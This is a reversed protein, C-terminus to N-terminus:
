CWARGGGRRLVDAASEFLVDVSPRGLQVREECSFALDLGSWWCTTGPRRSALVLGPVADKDNPTPVRLRTRRASCRSSGHGQAVEAGRHQVVRGVRRPRPCRASCARAAREAWGLVVRRRRDGSGGTSSRPGDLTEYDDDRGSFRVIEKDGLALVGITPRPEDHFRTHVREQLTPDFYIMVNRCVILHFENFPTRSWTTRAFVVNESLSRHFVAGTAPPTTTAHVGGSRRRQYNATYEQM